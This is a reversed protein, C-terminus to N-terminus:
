KVNFQQWELMEDDCQEIIANEESRRVRKVGIPVGFLRPCMYEEVHAGGDGGEVAKEESGGNDNESLFNSMLTVVNSCLSRLHDLEYRLNSNHEKLRENEELLEPKSTCTMTPSSTLSGGALQNESSNALSSTSIHKDVLPIATTVASAPTKIPTTSIRRRHIEGLLIKEGRRFYDNAFEWRDTVIKRFGYTNLQRIFSSFNNHKFYKPLLDRAFEAPRWVIFANGHQNWSILEDSSFDDVLQYTKTLFPSPITIQSEGETSEVPSTAM